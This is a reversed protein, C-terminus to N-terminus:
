VECYRYAEQAPPQKVAMGCKVDFVNGEELTRSIFEEYIEIEVLDRGHIKKNTREKCEEDRYIAASVPFRSVSNIPQSIRPM